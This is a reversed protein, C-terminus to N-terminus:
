FIRLYLMLMSIITRKNRNNLSLNLNFVHLINLIVLDESVSFVVKLSFAYSEILQEKKM